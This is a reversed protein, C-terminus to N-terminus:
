LGAKDLRTMIDTILSDQEDIVQKLETISGILIPILETYNVGKLDTYGYALSISEVVAEPLVRQVDQALVGVRMSATEADDIYHYKVPRIQLVKDLCDPISTVDKKIREDSNATWSTAGNSMYVGVNSQSYVHFLDGSEHGMKFYHGSAASANQITIDTSATSTSFRGTGAVDLGFLPNTNNIGVNSTNSSFTYGPISTITNTVDAVSGTNKRVTLGTTFVGSAQVSGNVDLACSPNSKGVGVNCSTYTISSAMASFGGGTSSSLASGNILLQTANITGVVDLNYGPSTTGIGLRGNSTLIMLDNNSAAQFRMHKTASVVTDKQGNHDCLGFFCGDNSWAASVGYNSMQYHPAAALSKDGMSQWKNSSNSLSISFADTYALLAGSNSQTLYVPNSQSGIFAGAMVMNKLNSESNDMIALDGNSSQTMTVDGIHFSNGGLWLDIFRNNSDGLTASLNSSPYIGTGVSINCGVDLNNSVSANVTTLATDSAYTLTEVVLNCVSVNSASLTKAIYVNSDTGVRFAGAVDLVANSSPVTTIGVANSVMYMTANKNPNSGCGLVIREDANNTRIIFDTSGVNSFATNSRGSQIWGFM